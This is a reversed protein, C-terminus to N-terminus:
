SFDRSSEGNFMTQIWHGHSEYINRIPKYIPIIQITLRVRFVNESQIKEYACFLTKHFKCTRRSYYEGFVILTLSSFHGTWLESKFPIFVYCPIVVVVNKTTTKNEEMLLKNDRM